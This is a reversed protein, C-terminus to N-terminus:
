AWSTAKACGVHRIYLLCYLETGTMQSSSLGAPQHSCVKLFVIYSLLTFFQLWLSISTAMAAGLYGLGAYFNSNGTAQMSAHLSLVYECSQQWTKSNSNAISSKNDCEQRRRIQAKGIFCPSFKSCCCFSHQWCCYCWSCYFSSSSATHQRVSM